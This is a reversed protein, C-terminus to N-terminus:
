VYTTSHQSSGLDVSYCLTAKVVKALLININKTVFYRDRYIRIWIKLAHVNFLGLIKFWRFSVPDASLSLLNNREKAYRYKTRETEYLNPRWNPRRGTKNKASIHTRIRLPKPETFGSGPPCFKCESISLHFIDQLTLHKRKLASHKM